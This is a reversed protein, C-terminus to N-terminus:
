DAAAVRAARRGEAEAATIRADSVGSLLLPVCLLGVGATIWFTARLGLLDASLGGLAAGLPMTGWALLRYGANVRGLMHDPAIRQRLSVTIVNWVISTGALMGALGVWWASTTLAPAVQSLPFLVMSVALTRTRGLAREVPAALASGIVAGVAGATLLVGFGAESLGMPGPAVAFLPFVAGWATSSLNSLGTCLAMTRLVGNGFLYRVGEVIDTRLRTPPGARQPRFSGAVLALVGAGFLYAAASAGLAAALALGALAGGLPPGVFQNATLEVVYLRGNAQALRDPDAVVGPLISQAATDFLTEGVGLAFAVVYLLWLQEWGASVVAALGGILAARGLNVLTMTRRRDLRDALAGAPLAVLLWPLRGVVTVSAFAAPDRTVGLAVLPLAVVFVGDALNSLGSAVVLRQYATVPQSDLLQNPNTLGTITIEIPKV